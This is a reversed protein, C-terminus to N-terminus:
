KVAECLAKRLDDGPQLGLKKRIHIRVTSVNNTSKDMIRAIDNVTKGNMVLRCVELETPTLQPYLRAFNEQQLRIEAKRQEVANLLNKESQEDLNNFFNTITKQEQRNNRCMQLYAVLEQKSMGFAELIGDQTKMYETTEQQLSHMSHWIIYGLICSFIEIFSFLLLFHPNVAQPNIYSAYFITLLNIATVIAPVTKVFALVLYIVIAFSIVLNIVIVREFNVPMETALYVIRASETLQSVIAFVCITQILTVRKWLYLLFIFVLLFWFVASIGHLSPDDAGIYGLIHLPLGTLFMVNSILFVILRTREERNVTRSNIFTELREKLQFTM